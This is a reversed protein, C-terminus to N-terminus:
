PIEQTPIQFYKIENKISDSVWIGGLDDSTVGGIVGFGQSGIPDYEGFYSLFEGGSSFVLIRAAEPDAVILRNLTDATLLPKNDLNQSYWGDIDWTSCPSSGSIRM